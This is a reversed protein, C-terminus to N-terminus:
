MIHNIIIINSVKFVLEIRLYHIFKYLDITKIFLYFLYTLCILCKIYIICLYM